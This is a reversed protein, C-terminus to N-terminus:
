FFKEEQITSNWYDVISSYNSTTIEFGLTSSDLEPLNQSGPYYFLPGQDGSIYELAIWVGCM